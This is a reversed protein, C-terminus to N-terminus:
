RNFRDGVLKLVGAYRGADYDNRDGVPKLYSTTFAALFHRSFPQCCVKPVQKSWFSLIDSFFLPLKNILNV